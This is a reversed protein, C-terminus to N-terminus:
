PVHTVETGLSDATSEVIEIDMQCRRSLNLALQKRVVGM